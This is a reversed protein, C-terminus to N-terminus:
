DLPPRAKRLFDRLDSQLFRPSGAIVISRIPLRRVSRTSLALIKAVDAVTLLPEVFWHEEQDRRRLGSNTSLLAAPSVGVQTLSDDARALSNAAARLERAVETLVAKSPVAPASEGSIPAYDSAADMPADKLMM